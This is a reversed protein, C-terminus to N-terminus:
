GEVFNCEAFPTKDCTFGVQMDKADFITYYKKLFTDGLIWWFMNEGLDRSYFLRPCSDYLGNLEFDVLIEYQGM